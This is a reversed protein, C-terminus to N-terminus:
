KLYKSSCWEEKSSSIKSWDGSTKYVNVKTWKKITRVVKYKIGAGNRVNLVSCNSV